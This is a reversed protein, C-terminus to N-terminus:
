IMKRLEELKSTLRFFENKNGNELACDIEDLLTKEKFLLLSHNIVEEVMKEDEHAIYPNSEIIAKYEDCDKILDFDLQIYVVEDPNRHLFNLSVFAIDSFREGKKLSTFGENKSHRPSLVFAIPCHEANEVFVVRDLRHDPLFHLFEVANKSVSHSSKMKKFFWNIFEKKESTTISCNM